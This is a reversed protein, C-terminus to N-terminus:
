ILEFMMLLLAPSNFFASRPEQLVHGLSQKLAGDGVGLKGVLISIQSKLTHLATGLAAQAVFHERPAAIVRNLNNMHM